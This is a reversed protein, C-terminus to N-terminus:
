NRSIKGKKIDPEYWYNEEQNLHFGQAVLM